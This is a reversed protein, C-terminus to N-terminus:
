RFALGHDEVWLGVKVQLLHIRGSRLLVTLM